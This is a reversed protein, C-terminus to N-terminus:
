RVRSRPVWLNPYGRLMVMEEAAGSGASAVVLSFVLALLLLTAKAGSM